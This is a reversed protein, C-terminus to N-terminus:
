EEPELMYLTDATTAVFVRDGALVPEGRIGGSGIDLDLLITPQPVLQFGNAVCDGVTVDPHSCRSVSSPWVTPDAIAVLHTQATGVFVIGRTVTPPGLQYASGATTGPVDAIWRVRGANGGCAELAHLRSFGWDVDTNVIEGGTMTIFVDEWAAGPVLYRSDGHVTGDGPAFPFGTPPFQWRVSAAGPTGSGAEVAYAWGDKMTSAVLDGCSTAMLSPGSAWDPDGDLDFPVPQLKWVVSGASDLRLLSLGHNPSPESQCGGNWCKTNGTTAYLGRAELGGGVSSWVGGGRTGTAKFNFGAVPNGTDLDVAVIRGNQIPNDCHNAIGIYVRNGLVLPSSYGIQEHLEDEASGTTGDLIAIEPSKWIEAGTAPDLAFLRGSGLGAGISRDPAGFIVADVENQIRGIAASSAIGFSSPNCTFQSTLAPDGAPPYQWLLAGSAADLAYLRGNSSGIFVRDDHVIPSARFGRPADRTFQWQVALKKVQYPDSLASAQVQQANRLGNHRFAPWDGSCAQQDGGLHECDVDIVYVWVSDCDGLRQLVTITDGDQLPQSLHIVPPGSHGIEVGNAFVLIEAGEVYETVVVETDGPLPPKIKAAPLDECPTGPVPESPDSESCLAQTATYPSGASVDPNVLIIHGAGGPTATGGVAAGGERVEVTAGTVLPGHDPAPGRATVRDNGEYVDHLTPVPIPSPEPDVEEVDSRPSEDTCLTGRAWVRADEVYAPNIGTWNLGWEPTAKFGGVQVPPDFGGGGDPNEAFVEITAGPVVDDVGAARGCEWLPPANLRPKPLGGPFDELHSTVPVANSPSSKVGGVTQTATVVQGATFAVDVDVNVGISPFQGVASGIPTPDGDVFIEVAAGPIFHQVAANSSCQYIPHMLTPPSIFEPDESLDGDNRHVNPDSPEQDNSPDCGSLAAALVVVLLLGIPLASAAGLRPRSSPTSARLTM